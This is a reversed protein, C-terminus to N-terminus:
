HLSAGGRGGERGEEEDLPVLGLGAVPRATVFDAHDDDDDDAVGVVKEEEEKKETEFVQEVSNMGGAMVRDWEETPATVCPGDRAKPGAALAARAYPAWQEVASFDRVGMAGALGRLMQLVRLVFFVDPPFREISVSKIPSDAAFPDVRNPHTHQTHNTLKSTENSKGWRSRWGGGRPQCSVHVKARRWGVGGGGGVLLWESIVRGRTLCAM